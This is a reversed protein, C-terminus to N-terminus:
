KLELKVIPEFKKFNEEKILDSFVYRLHRADHIDKGSGLILEKYLIEFEIKPVKFDFDEVRMKQPHSFEFFKAKRSENIPIFEINPFTNDVKAFRINSMDAVYAYAEQWSDGQYCWFSNQMLDEFLAKFKNEETVPVLIDVDETGRPRGTSISVFGSVILYDSHKKLVELFEKVFRDLETLERNLVIVDGEVAYGKEM